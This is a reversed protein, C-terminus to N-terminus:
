LSCGYSAAYKLLRKQVSVLVTAREPSCGLGRIYDEKTLEVIQEIRVALTVLLIALLKCIKRLSNREWYAATSGTDIKPTLELEIRTMLEALTNPPAAEFPLLFATASM